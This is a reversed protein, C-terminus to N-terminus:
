RPSQNCNTSHESSEVRAIEGRQIAPLIALVQPILPRLTEIRNNPAALMVIALRTNRLNQQYKVGQDITIFVDFTQEALRILEGNKLGKWGMESVTAVTHGPLDSKLKRPLCEDLLIKM